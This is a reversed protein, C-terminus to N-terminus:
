RLSVGPHTWTRRAGATISGVWLWIPALSRSQLVRHSSVRLCLELKGSKCRATLNLPGPLGHTDPQRDTQQFTLGSGHGVYIWGASIKRYQCKELGEQQKLIHVGGVPGVDQQLVPVRVTSEPFVVELVDLM